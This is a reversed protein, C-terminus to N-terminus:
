IGSGGEEPPRIVRAKRGASSALERDRSFSRSEAAVNRGGKRGAAAANETSVSFARKERPVSKGGMSAIAKVREPDM